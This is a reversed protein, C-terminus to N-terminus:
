RHKKLAEQFIDGLSPGETNHSFPDKLQFERALDEVINKADLLSMTERYCTHFEDRLKKIANIKGSEVFKQKVGELMCMPVVLTKVIEVHYEAQKVTKTFAM